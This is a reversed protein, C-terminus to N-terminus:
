SRDDDKLDERRAMWTGLKTVTVLAESAAYVLQEFDHFHAAVVQGHSLPDCVLTGDNV